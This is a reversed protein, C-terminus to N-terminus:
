AALVWRTLEDPPVIGRIGDCRLLYDRIESKSLCPYTEELGSVITRVYCESPAAIEQVDNQEATITVISIGEDIGIRLIRRYKGTGLISWATGYTLEAHDPVIIRGSGNRGNEQRVVDNFQDYSILYIRGYARINRTSQRIFAPAGGWTQSHGAFYLEYPLEIPRDGRPASRDRCGNVYCEFRSRKLNSGYGAYWVLRDAVGNPLTPM